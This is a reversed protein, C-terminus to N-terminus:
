PRARAAPGGLEDDDRDHVRDLLTPGLRRHPRVDVVVAHPAQDEGEVVAASRRRLPSRRPLRGGVCDGLRRSAAAADGVVTAKAVM